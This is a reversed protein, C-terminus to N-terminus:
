LTDGEKLNKADFESIEINFISDKTKCRIQMNGRWDSSREPNEILVVGKNRFKDIPITEKNRSGCSVMLLLILIKKM